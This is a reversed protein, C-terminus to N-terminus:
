ISTKHKLYEKATDYVAFGIATSPVVKLYNLSLGAYLGKRLGMTKYIMKLGHWSNRIMVRSRSQTSKTESGSSGSAMEAGAYTVMDQVQMRRRVVDLPYTITQAVLGACAGFVLKVPTGVVVDSHQQQQQQEDDDGDDLNRSNNNQNNQNSKIYLGKLYQYVFFKLGAYPFIGLLTPGVGKYLGPIGERRALSGLIGAMTSRQVQSQPQTASKAGAEIGSTRWALRTRVLDLPYTAAVATAGAMSGAIFDVAPTKGLVRFAEPMSTGDLGLLWTRFRFPFWFFSYVFHFVISQTQRWSAEKEKERRRVERISLLAASCLTYSELRESREGELSWLNGRNELYKEIHQEYQHEGDGDGGDGDASFGSSSADETFTFTSNHAAASHNTHYNEGERTACRCVQCM